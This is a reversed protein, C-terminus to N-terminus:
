TANVNVSPSGTANRDVVILPLTETLVAPTGPKDNILVEGSSFQPPIDFGEVATTRFGVGPPAIATSASLGLGRRAFSRWILEQNAGANTTRDALLIADRADVFTPSLPTAKLGNIVLQEAAPRGSEFGYRQIFAQRMDWLMSCWVTGVSHVETTARIDGFTLPNLDFRTTYPYNRVGRNSQTVYGGTSVATELPSENTLFSMAFFDSWGEGMGGGQMSRLGISTDTGSLRTSVGHTYEHIIVSADYSSDLEAGTGDWMLSPLLPSSGDLSTQFYAKNRGPQSTDAPNVAAGRLTDARVADGAMGGRGFNNAQFNRSQEDFGLSYFRDHSYNVWYFLNAASASACELPSHGPALDLPFDFNGQANARVTSGGTLDPNFFVVANNGSTVDASVWSEPSATADGAFSVLQRGGSMVPNEGIFVRGSPAFAYTLADRRLAQGTNADLIILYADLPTPVGYLLVQYALRIEQRSIAYYVLSAESRQDLGAAQFRIRSRDASESQEEKSPASVEAGCFAAAKALAQGPDLSPPQRGAQLDAEPIFAGSECVISGKGDLIFLMESDFVRIGAVQQELVIRTLGDNGRSRAAVRAHDLQTSSLEFVESNRLVFYRAIAEPEDSSPSTLPGETSFVSNPIDLTENWRLVLHRDGDGTSEVRRRKQELNYATRTNAPRSLERIDFNALPEFSRLSPTEEAVENRAFRLQAQGYSGTFLISAILLSLILASPRCSTRLLKSPPQKM